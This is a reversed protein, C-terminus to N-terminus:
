LVPISVNHLDCPIKKTLLTSTRPQVLVMDEIRIGGWGPLYIGPEVTVIDGSKLRRRNTPNIRPATHIRRGVGHGTSHIFFKGYGAQQILFRAHHDITNASVGARIAAIASVQAKRVLRYLHRARPSPKGFFFTRTVDTCYGEVKVGIDIKVLENQKLKRLVPRHHPQAAHPGFAVIPRFAHKVGHNIFIEDLSRVVEQETIGAHLITPIKGFSKQLIRIGYRIASLKEM